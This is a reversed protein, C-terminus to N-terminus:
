QHLSEEFFWEIDVVYFYWGSEHLPVVETMYLTLRIDEPPANGDMFYVIGSHAYFSDRRVFFIRCDLRYIWRYGHWHLTNLSALVVEDDIQAMSEGGLMRSHGLIMEVNRRDNRLVQIRTHHQAALFDRVIVFDEGNRQFNREVSRFDPMSSSAVSIVASVVAGIIM